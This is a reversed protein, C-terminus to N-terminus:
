SNSRDDSNGSTDSLGNSLSQIGQGLSEFLAAVNGSRIHGLAEKATENGELTEMVEKPIEVEGIPSEIKSKDSQEPQLYVDTDVLLNSDKKASGYDQLLEGTSEETGGSTNTEAEPPTASTSAETQSGPVQIGEEGMTKKVNEIIGSDQLKSGVKKFVTSIDGGQTVDSMVDSMFDKPDNGGMVGGMIRSIAEESPIKDKPVNLGMSQAMGTAVKIYNSLGKASMDIDPIEFGRSSKVGLERELDSIVGEFEKNAEISNFLYMCLLKLEQPYKLEEREQITEKEDLNGRLAESKIVRYAKDRAECAMEYVKTLNIIAQLGGESGYNFVLARKIWDDEGGGYKEIMKLAKDRAKRFIEIHIDVGSEEEDEDDDEVDMTFVRVYNRYGKLVKEKKLDKMPIEM